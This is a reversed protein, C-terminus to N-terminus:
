DILNLVHMELSNRFAYCTQAATVKTGLVKGSIKQKLAWPNSTLLFTEVVMKNLQHLCSVEVWLSFTSNFNRKDGQVLGVFTNAFM